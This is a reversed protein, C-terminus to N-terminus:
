TVEKPKYKGMSTNLISLMMMLVTLFLSNACFWGMMGPVEKERTVSGTMWQGNVYKM